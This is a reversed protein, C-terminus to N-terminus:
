LCIKRKTYLLATKTVATSTRLPVKKWHELDPDTLKQAVCIRIM